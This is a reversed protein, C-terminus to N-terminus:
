NVNTQGPFHTTASHGHQHNFIIQFSCICYWQLEVFFQANFVEVYFGSERSSIARRQLNRSTQWTKCNYERTPKPHMEHTINKILSKKWVWQRDALRECFCNNLFIAWLGSLLIRKTELRPDSKNLRLRVRKLCCNKIWIMSWVTQFLICSFFQQPASIVLFKPQLM